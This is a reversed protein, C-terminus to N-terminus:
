RPTFPQERVNGIELLEEPPYPVGIKEAMRVMRNYMIFRKRPDTETRYDEYIAHIKEKDAVSQPTHFQLEFRTGDPHVVAVNIGQYPDGGKWYNKVNLEYGLKKMQEVVDKVGDIYDEPEYSMTYRAIDSMAEAAKKADGGHEEDKEAAIKRILSKLAKMRYDLGEMNAKNKEALDILLKTIEAEVKAVKDRQAKAAEVVDDPYEGDKPSPNDPEKLEYGKYKKV